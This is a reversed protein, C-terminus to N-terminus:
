RVAMGAGAPVKDALKVMSAGRPLDVIKTRSTWREPMTYTTRGRRARTTPTHSRYHVAVGFVSSGTRRRHTGPRDIKIDRATAPFYVRKSRTRERTKGASTTQPWSYVLFKVKGGGSYRSQTPKYRTVM